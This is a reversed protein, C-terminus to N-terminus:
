KFPLRKEQQIRMERRRRLRLDNGRKDNVAERPDSLTPQMPSAENMSSSSRNAPTRRTDRYNYKIEEIEYRIGDITGQKPIMNEETAGDGAVEFVGYRSRLPPPLHNYLYRMKSTRNFRIPNEPRTSPLKAAAPTQDVFSSSRQRTKRLSPIKAFEISDIESFTLGRKCAARLKSTKNLRYTFHGPRQKIYMGPPHTVDQDLELVDIQPTATSKTANIEKGSKKSSQSHKRKVKVGYQYFVSALEKETM